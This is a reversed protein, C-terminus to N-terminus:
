EKEKGIRESLRIIRGLIGAPGNPFWAGVLWSPARTTAAIKSYVSLESESPGLERLAYVVDYHQMRKVTKREVLDPAATLTFRAWGEVPDQELAMRAVCDSNDMPWPFDFYYYLVSESDSLAKIERSAENELFVSHNAAQSLTSVFAELRMSTRTTAQYEVFQLAKGQGDTQDYIASKVEVKGQDAREVKWKGSPASIGLWPLALCTLMVQKRSIPRM